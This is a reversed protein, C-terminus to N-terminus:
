RMLKEKVLRALEGEPLEESEAAARREARVQRAPPRRGRALTVPEDDGEEISVEFETEVEVPRRRYVTIEEPAVGARLLKRVEREAQARGSCRLAQEGAVV